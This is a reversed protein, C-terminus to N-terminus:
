FTKQVEKATELDTILVNILKGKIAGIIAQTKESGGAIGVRVPIKMFSNYDIAFVRENIGSRIIAGEVNFYHTCIEGVANRKKLEQYEEEFMFSKPVLGTQNTFNGIGVVAVTCKKMTDYVQSFFSQNLMSDRLEKNEVIIPAYMFCPKAKLIQASDRVINDSNTSTEEANLGGVLQTVTLNKRNTPVLNNVLHSLARGRSFGIIDNDKLIRELYASAATGLADNLEKMDSSSICVENLGTREELQTELEVNTNFNDRITITVIGTDLCRRIIRNVRQRSMTMKKAIEDQTMGVKYYYYAVKVYENNRIIEAV